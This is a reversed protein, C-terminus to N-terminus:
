NGGNLEFKLRECEAQGEPTDAVNEKEERDTRIRYLEENKGPGLILHWEPTVISRIEGAFNKGRPLFDLQALYSVPFPWSPLSDPSLWLRSLSAEPFDRDTGFGAIQLLTAPIAATSVPRAIRLNEPIRGPAWVILPVHILERYLTNGHGRWGHEAFGEGHDSTIAVITNRDLGRRKLDLLLAEIQSDVYAVSADYADLDAQLGQSNEASVVGLSGKYRSEEDPRQAFAARFREPPHYPDHADFYNIVLFFPRSDAHMWPIVKTNLQQASRRGIIQDIAGLLTLYKQLRYGWMTLNIGGTWSRTGDDFHLFGEDFNFRRSFNFTNGSFAATRYGRSRFNSQVTPVRGDMVESADNLGHRQPTQGTLLSAHVPLTWSSPSIAEEFVVGQSSIQSLFPTTPRAYGYASLHDARLADVIILIVNPAGTTPAPLHATTRAEAISDFAFIGIAFLAVGCSLWPVTRRQFAHVYQQYGRLLAVVALALAVSLIM